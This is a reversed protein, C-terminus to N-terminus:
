TNLGTNGGLTVAGFTLADDSGAIQGHGTVMGGVATTDLGGNFTLTDANADGLTLTGTNTPAFANTISTGSGTLSVNAVTPGALEADRGDGSRYLKVMGGINQLM